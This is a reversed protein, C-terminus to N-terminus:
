AAMLKLKLIQSKHVVDSGQSVCALTTTLDVLLKVCPQLTAPCKAVLEM